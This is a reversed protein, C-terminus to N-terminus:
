FSRAVVFHELATVLAMPIVIIALGIFLKKKSISERDMTSVMARSVLTGGAIIFLLVILSLSIALKHAMIVSYFTYM